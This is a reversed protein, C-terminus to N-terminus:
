FFILENKQCPKFREFQMKYTYKYVDHVLSNELFCVYSYKLKVYYMIQSLLRARVNKVEYLNAM